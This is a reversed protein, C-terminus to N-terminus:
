AGDFRSWIWTHHMCMFIFITCLISNYSSHVYSSLEWGGENWILYVFNWLIVSLPTFFFLHFLSTKMQLLEKTCIRLLKRGCSGEWLLNRQQKSEKDCTLLPNLSKLFYKEESISRQHLTLCILGKEMKKGRVSSSNLDNFNRFFSEHM